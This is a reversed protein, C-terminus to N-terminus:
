QKEKREQINRAVSKWYAIGTGATSDRTGTPMKRPGIQWARIRGSSIQKM